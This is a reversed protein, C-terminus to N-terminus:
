LPRSTHPSEDHSKGLSWTCRTPKNPWVFLSMDNFSNTVEDFPCKITESNTTMKFKNYSPDSFINSIVNFIKYNFFNFIDLM